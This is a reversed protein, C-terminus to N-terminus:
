PEIEVDVSFDVPVDDSSIEAREIITGTESDESALSLVIDVMARPEFLVLDQSGSYSKIRGFESVGINAERLIEVKSPLLRKSQIRWLISTAMDLGVGVSTYSELTLIARLVSRAKYDIEEGARLTTATDVLMITGSGTDGLDITTPVVAMANIFSNALKFTDDDIKIVWYSTDATLNLPLDAGELNVPGDGTLLGHAVKTLTNATADVSSITFDDFTLYNVENDVWPLGGDNQFQLHMIIAPQTPRPAQQNGWIVHSAALGTCALVWDYIAKQIVVWNLGGSFSSM